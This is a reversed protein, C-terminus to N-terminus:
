VKNNTRILYAICNMWILYAICSIIFAWSPHNYKAFEWFIPYIDDLVKFFNVVILVTAGFIELLFEVIDFSDNNIRRLIASFLFSIAEFTDRAFVFTAIILTFGVWIPSLLVMFAFANISTIM